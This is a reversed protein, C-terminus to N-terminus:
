QAFPRVRVGYTHTPLVFVAGAQLEAVLEQHELGAGANRRLAHQRTATLVRANRRQSRAPEARRRDARERPLGRRIAFPLASWPLEAGLDDELRSSFRRWSLAPTESGRGTTGFGHLHSSSTRAKRGSPGHERDTRVGARKSSAPRPAGPDAASRPHRTAPVAGGWGKPIRRAGCLHSHSFGRPQPNAVLSGM